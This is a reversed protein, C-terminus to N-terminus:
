GGRANDLSGNRIVDAEDAEADDKACEGSKESADVERSSDLSGARTVDEEKGGVSSGGETTQELPETIAVNQADSSLVDSTSSELGM